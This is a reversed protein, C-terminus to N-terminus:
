QQVPDWPFDILRYIKGDFKSKFEEGMSNLLHGKLSKYPFTKVSDYVQITLDEKKAICKKVIYERVSAHGMWLKKVKVKM